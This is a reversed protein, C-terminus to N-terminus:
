TKHSVELGAVLLFDHNKAGIKENRMANGDIMAGFYQLCRALM